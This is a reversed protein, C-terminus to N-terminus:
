PNTPITVGNISLTSGQSTKRGNSQGGSAPSGVGESSADQVFLVFEYFYDLGADQDGDMVSKIYLTRGGIAPIAMANNDIQQDPRYLWDNRLDINKELKHIQVTLNDATLAKNKNKIYKQLLLKDDDTMNKIEDDTIKASEASYDCLICGPQTIFTVDPNTIKWRYRVSELCSNTAYARRVYIIKDVDNGKNKQSFTVPKGAVTITITTDSNPQSADGLNSGKGTNVIPYLAELERDPNLCSESKHKVNVLKGAVYRFLVRLRRLSDSDNILTITNSQNWQDSLQLNLSKAAFLSIRSAANTVGSAAVTAQTMKQIQGGLPITFSPNVNNTTQAGASSVKGFSPIGYEDDFTKIINFAVQETLLQQYASTIDLTNNNLQVSACGNLAAFCVTMAALNSLTHNNMVRKGM